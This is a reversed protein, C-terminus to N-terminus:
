LMKNWDTWKKETYLIHLIQTQFDYCVNSFFSIPNCNIRSNNKLDYQQEDHLHVFPFLTPIKPNAIRFIFTKM